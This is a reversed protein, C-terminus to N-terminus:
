LIAGPAAEPAPAVGSTVVSTLVLLLVAAVVAFIVYATILADKGLVQQGRSNMRDETDEGITFVVSDSTTGFSEGVAIRRWFEYTAIAFPIVGVIFVAITTSPALPEVVATPPDNLAPEALPSPLMHAQSLLRSSPSSCCPRLQETSWSTTTTFAIAGKPLGVTIVALLLLRMRRKTSSSSPKM